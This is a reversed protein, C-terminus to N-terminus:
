ADTSSSRIRFMGRERRIRREDEGLKWRQLTHELKQTRLQTAQRPRGIQHVDLRLSILPHFIDVTPNPKMELACPLQTHAAIGIRDNRPSSDINKFRLSQLINGSHELSTLSRFSAAPSVNLCSMIDSPARQYTRMDPGVSRPSERRHATARVTPPISLRQKCLRPAYRVEFVLSHLFQGRGPSM